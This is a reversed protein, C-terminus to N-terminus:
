QRVLDVRVTGQNIRIFGPVELLLSLRDTKMELTNFRREVDETLELPGGDVVLSIKEPIFVSVTRIRQKWDSEELLAAEKVQFQVGKRKSTYIRYNSCLSLRGSDMLWRREHTMRSRSLGNSSLVLDLRVGAQHNFNKMEKLFGARYTEVSARVAQEIAPLGYQGAATEILPGFDSEVLNLRTELLDLFLFDQCNGAARRKWDPDLRDALLGLAAGVPYVRHRPMEEPSIVGNELLREVNDLLQGAASSRIQEPKDQIDPVGATTWLAPNIRELAAVEVYKATGERIELGREFRSVWDGAQRWRERRVAAFMRALDTIRDEQGNEMALLVDRLIHVEQVALVTNNENLIPYQEERAWPIDGFATSQYQHFGEHIVYGALYADVPLGQMETEKFADDPLGVAVVKQDGVQFDFVLQGALDRYRGAHYLVPCGFEPWGEPLPDFDAVAEKVNFLLAWYDPRYVLFPQRSLDYGPWIANGHESFCRIVSQNIKWLRQDIDDPPVAMISMGVLVLFMLLTTWRWKIAM